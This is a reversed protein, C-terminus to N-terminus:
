HGRGRKCPYIMPRKDFFVRLDRDEVDLEQNEVWDIGRIATSRIQHFESNKFSCSVQKLSKLQKLINNKPYYKKKM